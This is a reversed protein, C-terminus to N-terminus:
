KVVEAAAWARWEADLKKLDKGSFVELAPVGHRLRNLLDPILGKYAGGALFRVFSAAQLRDTEAFESLAKKLLADIPATQPLLEKTEAVRSEGALHAAMGEEFWAPAAPVAAHLYARAAARVLDQEAGPGDVVAAERVDSTELHLFWADRSSFITARVGRPPPGAEKLAEAFRKGAEDLKAALAAMREETGDSRLEWPGAELRRHAGYAAAGRLAAFIRRARLAVDGRCPDLALAFDADAIALRLEGQALRILGRIAVALGETPAKAVAEEAHSWAEELLGAELTTEALAARARAEASAPPPELTFDGSHAGGDLKELPGLRRNMEAPDVDGAIWLEKISAEGRAGFLLKRPGAGGPMTASGLVRDGQRIRIAAGRREIKVPTAASAPAFAPAGSVDLKLTGSGFVCLAKPGDGAQVFGVVAEGPGEFVFYIDVDGSFALDKVTFLADKGSIKLVGGAAVATGTTGTVLAFDSSQDADTFTYEVLLRDDGIRRAEGRLIAPDSLVAGIDPLRPKWAADLKACEEFAAKAEKWLRQQIAARGLEFQGASGAGRAIQRQISLFSSAELASWSLLLDVKVGDIEGRVRIDERSIDVIEAAKVVKGGRLALDAKSGALKAKALSARRADAAAGDDIRKQAAATAPLAPEEVGPMPGPESPEDVAAVSAEEADKTLRAIEDKRLKVYETWGYSSLLVRIKARASNPQRLSLLQKIEDLLKEAEGEQKAIYEKRRSEVAPDTTPEPPTEPDTDAVVPPPVPAKPAPPPPPPPKNPKVTVPPPEPAVPPTGKRTMIFAVIAILAAAVSLIAGLAGSKKPIAEVAPVKIRRAPVPTPTADVAKKPRPAPTPSGQDLALTGAGRAYFLSALTRSAAELRKRAAPSIRELVAEDADSAERPRVEPHDVNLKRLGTVLTLAQDLEMWGAEVAIVALSKQIGLESLVKQVKTGLNVQESTLARQKVAAGGFAIDHPSSM